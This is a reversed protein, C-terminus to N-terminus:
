KKKPSRRKVTAAKPKPRKKLEQVHNNKSPENALGLSASLSALAEKTLLKRHTVRRYGNRLKERELTEVVTRIEAEDMLQAAKMQSNLRKSSRAGWHATVNYGTGTPSHATVLYIKDENKKPDLCHMSLRVLQPLAPVAPLANRVFQVLKALDKSSFMQQRRLFLPLDASKLPGCDYIFLERDKHDSVMANMFNGWEREVWRSKIHEPCSAVLVLVRASELADEIAGGFHGRGAAALSEESFFVKIGEAKLADYVRRAAAADATPKGDKGSNKFSIFVDYKM